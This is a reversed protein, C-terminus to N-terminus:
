GGGVDQEVGVQILEFEDVFQLTQGASVAFFIYVV